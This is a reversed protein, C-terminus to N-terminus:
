GLARGSHAAFRTLFGLLGSGVFGCGLRWGGDYRSHDLDAFGFYADHSQPTLPKPNIQLPHNLPLYRLRLYEHTELRAQRVENRQANFHEGM